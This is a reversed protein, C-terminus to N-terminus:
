KNRGVMVLLGIFLVESSHLGSGFGVISSNKFPINLSLKEILCQRCKRHRRYLYMASTTM